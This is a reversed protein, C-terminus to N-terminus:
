LKSRGHTHRLDDILRALVAALWVPIGENTQALEDIAVPPLRKGLIRAADGAKKPGLWALARIVNGARRVPIHLLWDAAHRFEVTQGAVTMRRSRGSTLYILKAPVATTLGLTNASAAGHLAVTEGRQQAIAHIAQEVLPPSKGLRTAVPRAYLGRGVRVLRGHRVLTALARNIVAPPGLHALGKTNVPAGEPHHSFFTVIAAFRDERESLRDLRARRKPTMNQM